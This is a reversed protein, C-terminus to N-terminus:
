EMEIRKLIEPDVKFYVDREKERQKCMFVHREFVKHGYSRECIPCERDPHLPFRHKGHVRLLGMLTRKIIRKELETKGQVTKFIKVWFIREEAVLNLTVSGAIKM